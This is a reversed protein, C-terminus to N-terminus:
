RAPQLEEKCAYGSSDKGTNVASCLFRHGRCTATWVGGGDVVRADGVVVEEPPCGIQGASAVRLRAVNITCGTALASLLLAAVFTLRTM